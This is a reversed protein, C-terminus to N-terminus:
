VGGGKDGCLRPCIQLHMAAEGEEVEVERGKDGEAAVIDENRTIM